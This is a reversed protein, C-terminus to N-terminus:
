HDCANAGTQLTNNLYAIALNEPSDVSAGAVVKVQQENFLQQARQGMGGAIVVHVGQEAIWKPLVGPEHPPPTLMQKATVTKAQPDVTLIAFQECHGFHMCLQDNATPIAIKMPKSDGSKSGMKIKLQAIINDMEQSIRPPISCDRIALGADASKAIEPVLPLSGLLDLGTEAALESGGSVDSFLRIEHNCHPCYLTAMNEVIGYIPLLVQQCFTICRRVDEVAVKQPTTVIVAGANQGVLQAASLPEDGTGPPADIVLYDLEGWVTDALLKQIVAYKMPGRWIVAQTDDPILFAISMVKLNESVSLPMIQDELGFCKQQVLGTMRPISPGHLDVDLLGVKAGLRSLEVALNVAITSKGVGGKGSLVLIKNKIQAMNSNLKRMDAQPHGHEMTQQSNSM